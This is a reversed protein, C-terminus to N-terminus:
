KSDIFNRICSSFLPDSFFRPFGVEGVGSSKNFIIDENDEIPSKLLECVLKKILIIKTNGEVLSRRNFDILKEILIPLDDLIIIKRESNTCDTISDKVADILYFGDEKFKNLFFERCVPDTACHENYIAMIINQFFIQYKPKHGDYYFYNRIDNPPSEAILLYKIKDPLYKESQTKFYEINEQEDM